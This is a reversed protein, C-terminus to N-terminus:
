LEINLLLIEQYSSRNNRKELILNQLSTQYLISLYSSLNDANNIILDRLIFSNKTATKYYKYISIMKSHQTWILSMINVAIEWNIIILLINAFLYTEFRYQNM